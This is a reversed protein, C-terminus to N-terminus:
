WNSRASNFGYSNVSMRTVYRWRVRRAQRHSGNVWRQRGLAHRTRVARVARFRSFLYDVGVYIAARGWSIEGRRARYGNWLASTAVVAAGAVACAGMTGVVCTVAAIVGAAAYSRRLVTRLSWAGNLDLSNIPDNPYGYATDNGGYVPDLSTFLATASNYLRAGMLTIGLADLTAREHAGLWGYGAGAAGGVTTTAPQAPQGYEDWDNWVDIGSAPQTGDLKVTANVAGRLGALALEATTTGVTTTFTIGLGEGTLAGFRTTTAVGDRVEVTWAPNDSADTYHRVVTGTVAGPVVVPGVTADQVLRRGAGDLTFTARVDGQSISQAVDTDYYGLAMDGRSPNATDAAPISTQRGLPDYSYAGQSNAGTTPQDAGNYARTLITAGTDDCGSNTARTQSTRNGNGDFGYGRRVCPVAGDPGPNGTIDDVGVLRGAKDYRYYRDSRVAQAGSTTYASGGDTSWERVMRGAADTTASWGFWPQDDVTAGTDPDTGRGSYVLDVLEGAPDWSHRRTIGGPLKEVTVKGQADYAATASHTIGGSTQEVKTVLGRTEAQGNADTGDYTYRAEGQNDTVKAVQGLADYSTTSTDAAQGAPTSTYTLQRGWSDYTMATSGAASTIGTVRGAADYSTTVAPVPTSGTLGTSTTTVTVPRSKEDYSTATTVVTAGAITQTKAAQGDWTYSTTREVPLTGAGPMTQCVWGAWAPKSGCVAVDPNAGATYYITRRTGPDATKEKASPQRQEVVRGMADYVTERTIGSGDTGTVTTTSTAQGLDWGTKNGTSTPLDYGTRVTSLQEHTVWGADTLEITRTTVTTPLRYPQGTVPNKGSNPAGEDYDTHTVPRAWILTGASDAIWRAPGTVDSVLAVTPDQYDTHTAAAAIDTTDGTRIAATAHTDWMDTTNGHDDYVTATWQWAGGGYSGDHVTWGEDDTLYVQARHWAADGAAPATTVKQDPGFVAFAKTARKSLPYEDFQGLDFDSVGLGADYVFAALQATGDGRDAVTSPVPRTVKALKNNAYSFDYGDEGPPTLKALRLTKAAADGTWGYGTTLKTVTDTQSVLRGAADYSYSSLQRDATEDDVQATITTVRGAADYSLKLIRCGATRVGVACGTVGAPVPAIIATVKGTADRVYSTKESTITDTVDQVVFKTEANASVPGTFRTEVGDENTLTVTATTTGTVALTIGSAATDDDVPRYTAALSAATVSRRTPTAYVLVDGEASVLALTGDVLTNDYLTAGSLGEDGGDLSATWGPGFPQKDTDGAFSSHTRSVSIGGTPGPLEADTETVQLEGTWLAVQGPGAAATPFGQGFASPVRVIRRKDTCTAPNSGYTFCVRVEIAAPVREKPGKGSGDTQGILSTTDFLGKVETTSSGATTTFTNSAPVGKWAADTGGAMRWQVASTVTSTGKPAGAARVSVTDTTTQDAVPALLSPAGYGFSYSATPSAKGLPGTATVTVSHGGAKGGVTKPLTVTTKTTPTPQTISVPGYSTGDITYRYSVAAAYSAGSAAEFTATCSEAAKVDSGWSGNVSPCLITPTPPALTAVRLERPASWASYASGDFAQSRLWVRENENLDTTFSCTAVTGAAGGTSRCTTTPSGATASTFKGVVITTGNGDPDSPRTISFVPRKASTYLVGNYTGASSVSPYAPTGPARNYSLTMIPPYASDDSHFRKWGTPSIEDDARLMLGVTAASGAAWAKAQATMDISVRGGPCASSYGRTETSTARKAGITPQATWRTATSAVGADWASWAAATCSWSHSEALSLSASMITKGHFFAGDYNLFSRAVQGSGNNGLKLEASGSQDTTYGQQVFTDFVASGTVQGYTPDITVPFVRAPDTLWAADTVVQLSGRSKKKGKVVGPVQSRTGLRFKAAKPAGHGQVRAGAADWVLPAHLKWRIKRSGDVLAVGGDTATADAGTVALTTPLVVEGKSGYRAVLAAAGQASTVQWVLEFGAPRAEVRVDVGPVVDAYTATSGDLVPEPLVVGDLGVEAGVGDAGTMSVVPESGGGSLSVEGPVAAPRVRSGDVVLKTDVRRWRAPSTSTAAAEFQVPGAAAEEEVHGDSFVFVRRSVSRESLVEVPGGSARATVSASVWDPRTVVGDLAVLGDTGRSLENAAPPSAPAPDEAWADRQPLGAWALALSM